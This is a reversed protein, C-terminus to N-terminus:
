EIGPLWKGLNTALETLFVQWELGTLYGVEKLVRYNAVVIPNKGKLPM